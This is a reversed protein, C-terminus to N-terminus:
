GWVWAKFTKDVSKMANEIWRDQQGNPMTEVLDPDKQLGDLKWIGFEQPGQVGVFSVFHFPDEFQLQEESKPGAEPQEELPPLEPDESTEFTHKRIAVVESPRAYATHVKHLETSNSVVHGRM